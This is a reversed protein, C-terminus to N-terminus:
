PAATHRSTPIAVPRGAMADTLAAAVYNKATALDAIDPTPKDDIAGNYIVVGSPNIVIMQPSTKAGYARATAASGDLLVATPTGGKSKLYADVNESRVAPAVITFWVVGKARWEKQLRPLNGSAYHKQTFECDPNHWELVVYQGKFDSM